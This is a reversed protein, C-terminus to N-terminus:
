EVNRRDDASALIEVIDGFGCELAICNKALADM